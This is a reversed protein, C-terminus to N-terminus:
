APMDGTRGESTDEDDPADLTSSEVGGEADSMLQDAIETASPQFDDKSMRTM